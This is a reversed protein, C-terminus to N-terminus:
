IVSSLLLEQLVELLQSFYFARHSPSPKPSKGRTRALRPAGSCLQEGLASLLGRCMGLGDAGQWIQGRALKFVLKSSSILGSKNGWCYKEEAFQKSLLSLPIHFDFPYLNFDSFSFFFFFSFSFFIFSLM